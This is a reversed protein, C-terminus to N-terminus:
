QVAQQWSEICTPEGLGMKGASCGSEYLFQANGYLVCAITCFLILCILSISSDPNFYWFLALCFDDYLTRSWCKWRAPYAQAPLSATERPSMGSSFRSWWTDTVSVKYKPNRQGMQPGWEGSRLMGPKPYCLCSQNKWPVPTPPPWRWTSKVLDPGVPVVKIPAAYGEFPQLTTSLTSLCPSPPKSPRSPLQYLLDLITPVYKAMSLWLAWALTDGDAGEGSCGLWSLERLKVLQFFPIFVEYNRGHKLPFLHWCHAKCSPNPQSHTQVTAAGFYAEEVESINLLM